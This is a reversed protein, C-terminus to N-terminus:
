NNNNNKKIFFNTTATIILNKLMFQFFTQIAPIHRKKIKIIFFILNNNLNNLIKM